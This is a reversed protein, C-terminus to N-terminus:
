KEEGDTKPKENEGGEAGEKQDTNRGKMYEEYVNMAENVKNRLAADDSTRFFM